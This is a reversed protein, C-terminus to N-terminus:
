VVMEVTSGCAKTVVNQLKTFDPTGLGTAADWGKTCKWGSQQNEGIANSGVTVDNFADPNQYFLPNVFGLTKKGASAALCEENLLSIIAGWTPTSASTGGVSMAQGQVEVLFQEGLLSVDPTGRGNSAYKSSGIEPQQALYSKVASSQYSPLEYDYSFGGGSGFQTTAEETGSTGSVFYTSGVAVAYPISAPFSPSLKGNNSGQRSMGGSGDDGSAILVTIGMAGLKQVDQSLRNITTSDCFDIKQSGYSVSVVNPHPDEAAVDNAWTLLDACFDFNPYSYVWTETGQGVGMIYETDLMSEVGPQTPTNQGVFKSIKCDSGDPNYAKCFTSLDSPAVYQGQFQAIAQINKYGSKKVNAISYASKILKPTVQNSQNIQANSAIPDLELPFGHLGTFTEVYEAIRSPLSVGGTLRVIRRGSTAHVFTAFRGSTMKELESLSLSAHIADGHAAVRVDTAGHSALWALVGAIATESPRVLAGMADWSLHNLYNANDPTSSAWFFENLRDVNSRRLGVLVDMRDPTAIQDETAVAEWGHPVSTAPHIVTSAAPATKIDLCLLKDGNGATATMTITAEALSAPLAKALLVDLSASVAGSAVPCKLGNWTVSGTGLPLTFTKPTCMDGTFTKDIIGAKITVEFTGGAAGEDLTGSGTVTTKTGLTISDPSV